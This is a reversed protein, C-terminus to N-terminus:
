THVPYGLRMQLEQYRKLLSTEIKLVAESAKEKCAPDSSHNTSLFNFTNYDSAPNRHEDFEKVAELIASRQEM